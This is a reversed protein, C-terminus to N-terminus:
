PFREVRALFTGTKLRPWRRVPLGPRLKSNARAEQASVTHNPPLGMAAAIDLAVQAQADLPM